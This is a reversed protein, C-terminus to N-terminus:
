NSLTAEVPILRVGKTLEDTVRLEAAGAFAVHRGVVAQKRFPEVVEAKLIHNIAVTVANFNTMNVFGSIDVKGSGDRVANGFIFDTALLVKSNDPLTVVVYESEVAEIVGQGKLMLYSTSSIGLRRGYKDLAAAKDATFEQLFTAADPAKEVCASLENDYLNRAYADADFSNVSTKAKYDQLNETKFSFVLVLIVALAALLYSSYKKM